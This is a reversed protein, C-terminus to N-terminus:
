IRSVLENFDSLETENLKKCETKCSFFYCFTKVSVIIISAM